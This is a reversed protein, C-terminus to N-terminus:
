QTFDAVFSCSRLHFLDIETYHLYMCITTNKKCVFPQDIGRPWIHWNNHYVVQDDSPWQPNGEEDKDAQQDKDIENTLVDDWM